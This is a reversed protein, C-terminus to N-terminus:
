NTVIECHFVAYQACFLNFRNAVGLKAWGPGYDWVSYYNPEQKQTVPLCPADCKLKPGPMKLKAIVAAIAAANPQAPLWSSDCDISTHHGCVCQSPNPDDDPWVAGNSDVLTPMFALALAVVTPPLGLQAAAETNRRQESDGDRQWHTGNSWSIKGQDDLTGTLVQQAEFSVEISSRETGEFPGRGIDYTVVLGAGGKSAILIKFGQEDKWHGEFVSM